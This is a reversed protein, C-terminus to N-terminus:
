LLEVIEEKMPYPLTDFLVLGNDDRLESVLGEGVIVGLESSPIKNLDEQTIRKDGFVVSAVKPIGNGLVSRLPDVIKGDYYDNLNLEKDIVELVYAVKYPGIEDKQDWLEDFVNTNEDDETLYTKRINLHAKFNENFAEKNLNNFDNVVSAVKVDLENMKKTINEVFEQQEDIDLRTFNKDFWAASKIIDDKTTIPYKNKLAYVVEAANTPMSALKQIFSAEDIKSVELYRPIFVESAYKQLNEPIALNFRKAASTLNAGATKLLEEPLEGALTSLFALNLETVGRNHMAYKHYLEGKPSILIVAFDKDSNSTIDDALPIDTTKSNESLNESIEAIKDLEDNMFFDTIDLNKTLINTM